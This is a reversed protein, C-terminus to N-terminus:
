LTSNLQTSNMSDRENHGHSRQEQIRRDDKEQDRLRVVAFQCGQAHDDRMSDTTRKLTEHLAARLADDATLRCEPKLYARRERSSLLMYM